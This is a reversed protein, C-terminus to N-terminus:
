MAGGQFRITRGKNGDGPSLRGTEVPLFLNKLNRKLCLCTRAEPELDFKYVNKTKYDNDSDELVLCRVRRTRQKIIKLLLLFTIKILVAQHIIM